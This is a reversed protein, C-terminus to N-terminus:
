AVTDTPREREYPQRELEKVTLQLKAWDEPVLNLFEVGFNGDRAWRVVAQKIQLPPESEAVEIRLELATGPKVATSSFIRCGRSSLDSLVGIGSIINASSFSSRFQVPFRPDKRHDM